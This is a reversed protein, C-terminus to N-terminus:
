DDSVEVVQSVVDSFCHYATFGTNFFVSNLEGEFAKDLVEDLKQLNLRKVLTERETSEGM